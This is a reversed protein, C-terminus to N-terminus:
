AYFYAISWILSLSIGALCVIVRSRGKGVAAAIISFVSLPCSAYVAAVALRHENASGIHALQVYFLVGYLCFASVSAAALGWTIAYNRWHRPPHVRWWRVWGFVLLLCPSLVITNGVIKGLMAPAKEVGEVAVFLKVFCIAFFLWYVWAIRKTSGPINPNRRIWFFVWVIMSCMALSLPIVVVPSTAWLVIVFLLLGAAMFARYKQWQEVRRVRVPCISSITKLIEGFQDIGEPIAIVHGKSKGVVRLYRGQVHEIAQVEDFQLRLDPIDAQRRLLYDNGIELDYTEWCRILRQRLKRPYWVVLYAIFAAMMLGYTMMSKPTAGKSLRLAVFVVTSAVVVLVLTPLYSTRIRKEESPLAVASLRYHLAIDPM